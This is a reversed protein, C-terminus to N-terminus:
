SYLIDTAATTIPVTMEVHSANRIKFVSSLRPNWRSIYGNNEADCIARGKVPETLWLYIGTISIM